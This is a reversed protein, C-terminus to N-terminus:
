IGPPQITKMYAAVTMTAAASKPIGGAVLRRHYSIWVAALHTLFADMQDLEASIGWARPPPSEEASEESRPEEM